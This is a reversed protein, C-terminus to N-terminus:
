PGVNWQGSATRELRIGNANRKWLEVDKAGAFDPKFVLPLRIEASSFSGSSLDVSCVSNDLTSMSGLAGMLRMGPGRDPFAQLSAQGTEADIVINCHRKGDPASDHFDLELQRANQYRITFTQRFGSGNGPSISDGTAPAPPLTIAPLAAPPLLTVGAPLSAVPVPAGIKKPSPPPEAPTANKLVHQPPPSKSGVMFFLATTGLIWIFACAVAVASAIVLWKFRRLWFNFRRLWFDRAPGSADSLALGRLADALEGASQFRKSPDKELCRLCITELGANVDPNLRRPPVPKDRLVARITEAQTAGRFPPQGTMLEYLIAGLSYVDATAGVRDDSGSAQEPPMYAPTGVVAGPPVSVDKELHLALGFDTIRPSGTADVLVNSPKLDRHLVGRAHAYAVTEALIRVYRACEPSSLPKERVVEALSPGEVFDMSFYHLGDFAGVEHIAVINAHQLGAATKAETHFRAIEAESALLGPRMMKVAVTRELSVQRARYVVGMGGRAIEELLEYDGFYHLKPLFPALARSAGHEIAVRLLCNPCLGSPADGAVSNGCNECQVSTASM